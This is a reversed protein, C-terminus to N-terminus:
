DQVEYTIIVLVNGALKAQYSSSTATAVPEAVTTVSLVSYGQRNFKNIEEMVTHPAGAFAKIESM